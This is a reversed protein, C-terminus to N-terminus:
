GLLVPCRSYGREQNIVLQATDFDDQSAKVFM